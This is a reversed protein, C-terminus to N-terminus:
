GVGRGAGVGGGGLVAGAGVMAWDCLGGELRPNVLSCSSVSRTCILANLARLCRPGWGWSDTWLRRGM